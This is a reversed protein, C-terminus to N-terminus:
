RVRCGIVLARTIEAVFLASFMIALAIGIPGVFVFVIFKAILAALVSFYLYGPLVYLFESGDCGQFIKFLDVLIAYRAIIKGFLEGISGM